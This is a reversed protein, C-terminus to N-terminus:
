ACTPREKKFASKLFLPFIFISHLIGNVCPVVNVLLATLERPVNKTEIGEINEDQIQVQKLCYRQQKEHDTSCSALFCTGFTGKGLFSHVDYTRALLEQTLPLTGAWDGSRSTDNAATYEMMQNQKESVDM